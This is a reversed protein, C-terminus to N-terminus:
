KKQEEMFKEIGKGLKDAVMVFEQINAMTLGIYTMAKQPGEEGGNAMNQTTEMFAETLLAVYVSPLVNEPMDRLKCEREAMSGLGRILRMVDKQVQELDVDSM